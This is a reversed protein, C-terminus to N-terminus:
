DIISIIPPQLESVGAERERETKGGEGRMWPSTRGRRMGGRGGSGAMVWRQILYEFARQRKARMLCYASLSLFFCSRFTIVHPQSGSKFRCCQLYVAYAESPRVRLVGHRIEWPREENNIQCKGKGTLGRKRQEINGRLWIVLPPSCECASQIKVFSADLINPCDQQFSLTSLFFSMLTRSLFATLPQTSTSSPKGHADIHAIEFISNSMKHFMSWRKSVKKSGVRMYIRYIHLPPLCDTLKPNFVLFIPFWRASARESLTFM